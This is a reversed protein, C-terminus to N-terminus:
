EEATESPALSEENGGSEGAETIKEAGPFLESILKDLDLNKTVTDYVFSNFPKAIATNDLSENFSSVFGWSNPLFSVVVLLLAAVLAGKFAGIIFGFLRNLGSVAKNRTLFRFFRNLLSIIIKLIIFLIITVIVILIINTIMPALIQALTLNEATFNFKSVVGALIPCLFSPIGGEALMAALEGADAQASFTTGFIPGSLKVLGGEIGKSVGGGSGFLWGAGGLGNIAAAIHRALLISIILSVITGFFDLLSKFFGKILGIIAFLVILGVLVLDIILVLDM